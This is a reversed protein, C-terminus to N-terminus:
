HWLTNCIIRCRLRSMGEWVEQSKKRTTWTHTQPRLCIECVRAVCTASIHNPLFEVTLVCCHISRFWTSIIHHLDFQSHLNLLFHVKNECDMYLLLFVGASGTPVQWHRCSFSLHFSAGTKGIQTSLDSHISDSFWGDTESHPAWGEPYVWHSGVSVPLSDRPALCCTMGLHGKAASFTDTHTHAASTDLSGRSHNRNRRGGGRLRQAAREKLTQKTPTRNCSWAISALRETQIFRSRQSNYNKKM